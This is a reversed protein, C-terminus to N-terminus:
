AVPSFRIYNHFDLIVIVKNTLLDSVSQHVKNLYDWGAPSPTTADPTATIYTWNIPLRVTNMGKEVFYKADINGPMWQDIYHDGAEAGSLNIGRFPLTTYSSPTPLPINTKKITVTLNHGNNWNNTSAFVNYTILCAAFFFTNACLSKKMIFDRIRLM